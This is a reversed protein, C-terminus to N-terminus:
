SNIWFVFVSDPVDLNDFPTTVSAVARGFDFMTGTVAPVHGSRLFAGPSIDLDIETHQMPSDVEFARRFAPERERQSTSERSTREFFPEALLICALLVVLLRTHNMRKEV